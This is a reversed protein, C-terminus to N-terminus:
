CSWATMRNISHVFREENDVNIACDEKFEKETLRSYFISPVPTGRSLESNCLNERVSKEDM